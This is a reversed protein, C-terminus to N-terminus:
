RAPVRTMEVYARDNRWEEGELWAHALMADGDRAVGILVDVERGQQLFWRQLVLSRELCSAHLVRAALRVGRVGTVSIAPPPPLTVALPGERLKTRAARISRVGWAFAVIVHWV